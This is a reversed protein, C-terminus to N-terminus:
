DLEWKLITWNSGKSLATYKSDSMEGVRVLPFGMVLLTFENELLSQMQFSWVTRKTWQAKLTFFLSIGLIELMLLCFCSFDVNFPESSCMLTCLFPIKCHYLPTSKGYKFVWGFPIPSPSCSTMAHPLLFTVHFYRLNLISIQLKKM